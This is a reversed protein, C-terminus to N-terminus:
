VRRLRGSARKRWAIAFQAAGGLIAGVLFGALICGAALQGTEPPSPRPTLIPTFLVLGAGLWGLASVALLIRIMMM